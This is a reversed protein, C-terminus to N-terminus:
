CRRRPQFRNVPQQPLVGAPGRGVADQHDPAEDGCSGYWPGLIGFISDVYLVDGKLIELRIMSIGCSVFKHSLEVLRGAM